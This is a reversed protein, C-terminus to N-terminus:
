EASIESEVPVLKIEYLYPWRKGTVFLRNNKADYAIGNLVDTDPTRERRPLLGTLDIWGTVDGSTPDIRVIRDTEWINAFVEGRIYAMENIRTVPRGRDTVPMRRITMFNEPDLFHLYHSGDSMILHRGDHTLGWGETPYTFDGILSFDDMDYIFGTQERWTLQILRGKWETLGEGFYQSDLHRKRLVTGTELEVKRLTSQNYHGTSEYLFGDRYILGQTFAGPDHPYAKIVEYTMQRTLTGPLSGSSSNTPPLLMAIAIALVIVLGGNLYWFLPRKKKPNGAGVGAKKRKRRKSGGDTM